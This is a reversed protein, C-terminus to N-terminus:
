KAPPAVAADKQGSRDLGQAVFGSAKVDEVFDRLYRVGAEGQRHPTAMAQEIVMFRGDLIRYGARGKAWDVLAPKVGALVPLAQQEFLAFSSAPSSAHVLQASTLNRSLYLDYASGKSVMIRTGPRDVEAVSRLPSAAPVAYGGEIIVYPATFAVEEGRKPDIAFFGVDWANRTADANVKGAADYPVLELPVGLRRALERALDVSVGSLEGAPSRQALVTNGYNIAARLKGSPALQRVAEPPAAQQTACAALLSLCAAALLLRM